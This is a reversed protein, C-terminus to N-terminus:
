KRIKITKGNSKVLYIGAPLSVTQQGMYTGSLSYVATPAGNSVAQAIATTGSIEYTALESEGSQYIAKIGITHSGESLVPLTFQPAQSEGIKQGDVLIEFRVVNGYDVVKGQGDEPGVLFDDIQCLFTDYSVYHIGIRISMGAYSSLDIRYLSWQEAPINEAISIKVFDDPNDSGESVWFELTEPYMSSYSKAKLSLSYNDHIDIVPSILWDDAKSQQPSFFIICKEGTPAAIAQDTPMMAPSTKWPNFVMPAIATPKTATGSGPFSVINTQSGLAIPYVPSGDRDISKWSGFTGTAFDDYDEFSDSFLLEQNWRLTYTADGNLTATINYPKMLYDSLSIDITTDANIDVTKQYHQFVGEAIDIMYQGKPLSAIDIKGNFVTLIYSTMTSVNTLTLEQGDASLKSNASVNLVVHSYADTPINAEITTTESTAKLYTAQIGISHAGNAINELVYNCNTTTAVLQGDLYINFKENPIASAKENMGVFVNDLMLMFSGYSNYHSIYRIAFKVQKGEYASLDYTYEKWSTYDATEYNDKDIRVFDSQTPNDTKTTVYVMFREAFRDAAKARFSLVNETGVTIAPSILWDDNANGSNTRTFGVYQKGDYPRLIPYDYWWVPDVSLPNIIQAYQQVGRNPYAGVLPAAAEMDADIGTWEGFNVAFPAYSEFDDFFAPEETNWSLNITNKGTFIDHETDAKLAFPQRTKETLQINIQKSTEGEAITFTQSVAVFGDRNLALHHNGSYINLACKGEADLSLTGYSVEYDTQTLSLTQGKLNDGEVSTVQITLRTNREQANATLALLLFLLSFPLFRKM